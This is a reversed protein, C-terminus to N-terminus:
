WPGGHRFLRCPWPPSSGGFRRRRRRPGGRRRPLGRRRSCRPRGAPSRRCPLSPARPASICRSKGSDRWGDWRRACADESRAFGGASAAAPPTNPPKPGPGPPVSCGNRGPIATPGCNRSCRRTCRRTPLAKGAFRELWRLYRGRAPHPRTPHYEGTERAVACCSRGHQRYWDLCADIAYATAHLGLKALFVQDEYTGRFAPEFGGIRRVVSRRVTLSCMGPLIAGETELFRQLLTPAAIPVGTPIGLAAVEDVAGTRGGLNHAGSVGPAPQNAPSPAGASPAGPSQWSHWYLTPGYVLDVEPHADLVDQHRSLREPRYVDDADLFAILPARAHQLGLNRSASMGRNEGGPHRAVRIRADEAALRDAVAGSGDTSGDDVLILEWDELRQQQVSEVAEPLYPMGNLFITIVTVRPPTAELEAFPTM